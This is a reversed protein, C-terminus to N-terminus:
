PCFLANLCLAKLIEAVCQTRMGLSPVLDATTLPPRQPALAMMICLLNLTQEPVDESQNWQFKNEIWM